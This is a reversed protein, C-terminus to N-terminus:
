VAGRRSGTTRHARFRAGNKFVLFVVPLKREVLMPVDGFGLMTFRAIVARRLRKDGPSALQAGLAKPDANAMLAM